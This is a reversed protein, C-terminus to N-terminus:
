KIQLPIFHHGSVPDSDRQDLPIQLKYMEFLPSFSSLSLIGPQAKLKSAFRVLHDDRSVTTQTIVSAPGSEWAWAFPIAPAESRPGSSHSRNAQANGDIKFLDANALVM